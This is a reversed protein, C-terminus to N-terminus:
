SRYGKVPVELVHGPRFSNTMLRPRAPALRPMAALPLYGRRVPKSGTGCGTHRWAAATRCPSAARGIAATMATAPNAM